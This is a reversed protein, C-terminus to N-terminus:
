FGAGGCGVLIFYKQLVLIDSLVLKPPHPLPPTCASVWGLLSFVVQTLYPFPLDLVTVAQALQM